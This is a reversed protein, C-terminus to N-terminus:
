TSNNFHIRVKNHYVNNVGVWINCVYEM